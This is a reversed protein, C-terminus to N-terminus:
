MYKNLLADVFKVNVSGQNLAKLGLGLFVLTELIRVVGSIASVLSNVPILRFSVGVVALLSTICDLVNPIVGVVSLVVDFCIALVAAKVTNKKLWENEEKMLVYGVVILMPIYGGFYIAFCAAAGALGVSLGLKTKQM